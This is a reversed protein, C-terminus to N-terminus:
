ITISGRPTQYGLCKRPRHNIEAVIDELEDQTLNEFSTRKPLYRRLLGNHNENTGRQYSAYPDAFYTAMSISQLKTHEVFELGNDMTVSRRVFQPWDQVFLKLQATITDSATKAPLLHALLYRTKREVATHIVKGKVQRGIVSDAEWHGLETRTEVTVPRLHISVRNPIRARQAARGHQKKRHKQKRPLYEWLRLRKTQPAYIFTYITEPCIVPYGRDRQLRGSVQEPSWGWRLHELVYAYTGQDKLPHRKGAVQKRKVSVAQAHIAVYTHHWGNRRVERSITTHHFGLHKSIERYSKGQNVLLALQDRDLPSFQKAMDQM